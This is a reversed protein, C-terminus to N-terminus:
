PCYKKVIGLLADTEIPKRVVEVGGMAGLMRSFASMVVVPIEGLPPHSRLRDLFQWGNLGPMMLDLLIVGPRPIQELAELGEEGDAATYCRYGELEMSLKLVDRLDAEDDIILITKESM